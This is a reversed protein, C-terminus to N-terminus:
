GFWHQLKEHAQQRVADDVYDTVMGLVAIMLGLDDTYGLLPLMDPIADFPLIFYGLAGCVSAKTLVPMNDNQLAYYLQLAKEVVECGASKAYGTLKDWFGTESYHGHHLSDDNM